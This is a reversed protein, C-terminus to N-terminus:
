LETILRNLINGFWYVDEFSNYLPVPAIRIVNPERWDCIVGNGKLSDFIQKGKQNILMSVQAGHEGDNLPTLIRIAEQNFSENIQQLIFIAFGTLKRSKKLLNDFGAEDFMNIAARHAAMDLISPNSVQYAEATKIPKFKKEMKFRTEKEYGWWGKLAPLTKDTSHHEHIFAGAIAGPGSNLYKYSCWCAFDVNWNHLKLEVNGAAHALDFGCCAGARHVAETITKMDFVQGSYYNIGGFFVLALENKHEEIASLIDETKIVYGNDRPSIEIISERPDLGRFSVQSAM